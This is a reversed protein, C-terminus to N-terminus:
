HSFGISVVKNMSTKPVFYHRLQLFCLSFMKVFENFLCIAVTRHQPFM